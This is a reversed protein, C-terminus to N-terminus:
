IFNGEVFQGAAVCSVANTYHKSVKRSATMCLRRSFLRLLWKFMCPIGSIVSRWGTWGYFSTLIVFCSVPVTHHVPCYWMIMRPSSSSHLCCCVRWPIAMFLCGTMSWGCKPINWPFHRGYILLVNWTARRTSWVVRLFSSKSCGTKSWGYKPINWTFHEWLCARLKRYREKNVMGSEHIFKQHM